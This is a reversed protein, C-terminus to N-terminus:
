TDCRTMGRRWMERWTDNWQRYMVTFTYGGKYDISFFLEPVGDANTDVADLYHLVPRDISMGTTIYKWSTRYGYIGKDLMVILHRPRVGQVVGTDPAPEPDHYELLISPPGESHAIQHISRKYRLLETGSVGLTPAVLSPVQSLANELASGDLLQGSTPKYNTMAIEVDPDVTVNARPIILPCGSLTDLPHTPDEWMGGESRFPSGIQGNRIPLFTKGTYLLQIDLARWGRQTMHLDRLGSSGLAAVPMVFRTGNRHYVRFLVSPSDALFSSDTEWAADGVPAKYLRSNIKDLTGKCAGAALLSLLPAILALRRSLHRLPLAPSRM